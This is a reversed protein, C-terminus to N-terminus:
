QESSNFANEYLSALPSEPFIPQGVATSDSSWKSAIRSPSSGTEQEADTHEERYESTISDADFDYDSEFTYESWRSQLIPRTDTGAVDSEIKDSPLGDIITTISAEHFSNTRESLEPLSPLPIPAVSPRRVSPHASLNRTNCAIPLSSIHADAFM